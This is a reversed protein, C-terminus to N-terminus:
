QQTWPFRGSSWTRPCIWVKRVKDGQTEIIRYIAIRGDISPDEHCDRTKPGFNQISAGRM